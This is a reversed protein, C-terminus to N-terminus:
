VIKLTFRERLSKKLQEYKSSLDIKFKNAYISVVYSAASSPAQLKFYQDKMVQAVLSNFEAETPMKNEFLIHESLKDDIYGVMFPIQAKTIRRGNIYAQRNFNHNIKNM